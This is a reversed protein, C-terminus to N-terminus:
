RSNKAEPADANQSVFARSKGLEWTGRVRAKTTSERNQGGGTETGVGNRPDPITIQWM